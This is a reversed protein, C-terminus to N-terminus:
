ASKEEQRPESQWVTEAGAALRCPMILARFRDNPITIGIASGNDIVTFTLINKRDQCDFAGAAKAVKALLDFDLAFTIAAPKDMAAFCKEYDPFSGEAEKVHFHQPNDLDTVTLRASGDSKPDLRATQLIPIPNRGPKPLAKVASEVVAVPISIGAAPLENPTFGDPDGPIIPFDQDEHATRKVAVLIHGDTAAAEGDKSVNVNLVAFRNGDKSAAHRVALQQRDLLM